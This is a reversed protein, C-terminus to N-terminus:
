TNRTYKERWTIEYDPLAISFSAFTRSVLYPVKQGRMEYQIIFLNKRKKKVFNAFTRCIKYLAHKIYFLIKKIFIELLENEKDEFRFKIKV